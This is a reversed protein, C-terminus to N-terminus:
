TTRVVGYYKLEAAERAAVAEEFTEFTGLNFRHKNYTIIARWKDTEKRYTVGTRGSTNTLLTRQNFTQVSKSAWRCNDKCYNGNVDIRDLSMGEPREGMDEYFNEFSNIWRDCVTIGRGGYNHYDEHNPNSCRAKMACWTPYLPHKRLGHKLSRQRNLENRLCGCSKISGNRLAVSSAVTTNGCDCLCVWRANSKGKVQEIVILRSFKKGLLDIIRSM